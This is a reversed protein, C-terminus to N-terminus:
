VYSHHDIRWVKTYYDIITATGAQLMAEKLKNYGVETIDSWAYMCSQHGNLFKIINYCVQLIM